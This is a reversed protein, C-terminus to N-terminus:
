KKINAKIASQTSTREYADERSWTAGQANANSQRALDLFGQGASTQPLEQAYQALFERVKASVSTGENIARIRAKRIVTEDLAVTLNTM